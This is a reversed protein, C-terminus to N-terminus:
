RGVSLRDALYGPLGSGVIKNRTTARDYEFRRYEVVGAADDFIVFAPDPNGDRPQGLSGANVIYRSEPALKLDAVHHAAIEGGPKKELILPMHTHGVFCVPAEFHDFHQEGDYVSFIYHWAEPEFPSAHAWCVGAEEKRAPLTQLFERNEPTLRDRTWVCAQYAHSNFQSLDTKGTVAYDHNGGLVLDAKERILEICRNPDAGYGVLDGLCVKKDHGIGDAIEFFAQLAELNGHVDSFIIYIM